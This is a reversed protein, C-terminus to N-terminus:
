GIRVSSNKRNTDLHHKRNPEYNLKNLNIARILAEVMDRFQQLKSTPYKCCLGNKARFLVVSSGDTGEKTCTTVYGDEFIVVVDYATAPPEKVPIIHTIKRKTFVAEIQSPDLKTLDLM